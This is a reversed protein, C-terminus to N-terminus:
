TSVKSIGSNKNGDFVNKYKIPTKSGNMKGSEDLKKDAAVKGPTRSGGEANRPKEQRLFGSNNPSIDPAITKSHNIMKFHNYDEQTKRFDNPSTNGFKTSNFHTTNRLNSSLNGSSDFKRLVNSCTVRM